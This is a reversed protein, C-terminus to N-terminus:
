LPELDPDVGSATPKGIREIHQKVLDVDAPAPDLQLYKAMHEKAGNLDGKAELIRGLV